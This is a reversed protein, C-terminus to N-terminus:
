YETSMASIDNKDKKRISKVMDHEAFMTFFGDM